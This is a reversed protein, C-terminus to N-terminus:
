ISDGALGPVSPGQRVSSQGIRYCSECRGTAQRWISLGWLADLKPSNSSRARASTAESTVGALAAHSFLVLLVALAGHGSRQVPNHKM